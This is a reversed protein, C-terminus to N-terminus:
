PNLYEKLKRIIDVIEIESLEMKADINKGL